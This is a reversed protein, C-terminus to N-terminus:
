RLRQDKANYNVFQTGVTLSELVARIENKEEENYEPSDLMGNGSLILDNLCPKGYIEM